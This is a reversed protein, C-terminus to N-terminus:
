KIKLYKKKNMFETKKKMTVTLFCGEIHEVKLDGKMKGNAVLCKIAKGSSADNEIQRYVIGPVLGHRSGKIGFLLAHLLEFSDEIDAYKSRNDWDEEVFCRLQMLCKEFERFRPNGSM